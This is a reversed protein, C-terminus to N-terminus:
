KLAHSQAVNFNFRSCDANDVKLVRERETRWEKEGEREGRRREREREKQKCM